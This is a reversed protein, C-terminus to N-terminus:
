KKVRLGMSVIYRAVGPAGFSPFAIIMLAISYRESATM